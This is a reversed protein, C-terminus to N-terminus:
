IMVDTVVPYRNHDSVQEVEQKVAVPLVIVCLLCM